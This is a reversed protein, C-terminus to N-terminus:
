KSVVTHVNLPVLNSAVNTWLATDGNELQIISYVRFGVFPEFVTLLTVKPKQDKVGGFVRRRPLTIGYTLTVETTIESYMSDNPLKVNVKLPIKLSADPPAIVKVENKKKGEVTQLFYDTIDNTVCREDLEGKEFANLLVELNHYRIMAENELRGTLRYLLEKGNSTITKGYGNLKLLKGGHTMIQECLDGNMLNNLNGCWIGNTELSNRVPDIAVGIQRVANLTAPLKGIHVVGQSHDSILQGVREDEDHTGVFLISRNDDTLAIENNVQTYWKQDVLFYHTEVDPNSTNWYGQAPKVAFSNFFYDNQAANLASTALKDAQINGLYDSHGKVWQISWPCEVLKLAEDLEQLIEVWMGKNALPQGDARCWNNARYKERFKVTNIVYKSDICFHVSTFTVEKSLRVLNRIAARFGEAEAVNNTADHLSGLGNFYVVPMAPATAQRYPDSEPLRPDVMIDVKANDPLSKALYGLTSIKYGNCGPGTKTPTNAHIFGHFGYGGINVGNLGGLHGGGDTHFVIGLSLPEETAKKHKEKLDALLSEDLLPETQIDTMQLSLELTCLKCRVMM